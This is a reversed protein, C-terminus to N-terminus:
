AADPKRETRPVARGYTQDPFQILLGREVLRSLAPRLTNPNIGLTEAIEKPSRRGSKLFEVVREPVPVSTSMTDVVSERTFRVFGEGYEIQLGIPKQKAGNNAKRNILTVHGYRDDEEDENRRMEFTARALNTKFVSGYPDKSGKEDKGPKRVHDILLSTTGIARLAHMLRITGENADAGERNGPSAMGVSDIVILDIGEEMVYRSLSEVQDTIASAGGARYDVEVPDSIGAGAAVLNIRDNWEDEDAEWDVILVRGKRAPKFGPIVEHGTALSVACAVAIYSKGSGGEGFIITPRKEPLMPYLLYPVFERAPRGGVKTFPMGEREALLVRVCFQELMDRWDVKVNPALSALEKATSSRTGMASVNFEGQLLHGTGPAMADASRVLLEGHIAGGRAKIRDFSISVKGKRFEALYGLGRRSFTMDAAPVPGAARLLEVARQKGHREIADAADDHAQGDPWTVWWLGVAIPRLLDAIRLMHDEGVEDHDPWLIVNKGNLDALATTSPNASAGTVSGVAPIGADILAQAAKEGECLVVTRAEGVLHIGYLPMDVLPGLDSDKAVKGDPHTWYVAKSGDAKDVRVHTAVHAGSADHLPFLTKGAM